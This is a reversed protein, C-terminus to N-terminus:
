REREEDTRDDVFPRNSEKIYDYDSSWRKSDEENFPIITIGYYSCHYESYKPFRTDNGSISYVRNRPLACELCCSRNNVYRISDYGQTLAKEIDRKHPQIM